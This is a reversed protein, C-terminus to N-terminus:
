AQQVLFGEFSTDAQSSRVDHTANQYLYVELYDTTGNMEILRGVSASTYRDQNASFSCITSGNKQISIDYIASVTSDNLRCKAYVWYYGAVSPTWRYNTTSDFDSTTDYDTIEWTIKTITNLSVTQNANKRARLMPTTSIAPKYGNANFQGVETPNDANGVGVRLTGDPVAPQYITFNNSATADTGVQLKKSKVTSM